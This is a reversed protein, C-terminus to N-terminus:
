RCNRDGLIPIFPAIGPLFADPVPEGAHHGTLQSAPIAAAAQGIVTLRRDALCGDLAQWATIVDRRQDVEGKTRLTLLRTEIWEHLPPCPHTPHSPLLLAITEALDGVRSYSADFLWDPIEALEAAWQRLKRTAILRKPRRGILFRVAWIADEPPAQQFYAVLEAIKRNTRTTEDLRTFLQAFLQM